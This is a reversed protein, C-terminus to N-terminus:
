RCRITVAIAEHDSLASGTEPDVADIVAAESVELGRAFFWDLALAGRVSGDGHTRRETSAGLVNCGRWDYGHREALAFLPEHAIPQELRRPDAELARAILARDSLEARALSHSNVDGGILAPAGPAFDDVAALV